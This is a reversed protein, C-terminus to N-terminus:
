AAASEQAPDCLARELESASSVVHVGPRAALERAWDRELLAALLLVKRGSALSMRAQIRTGSHESAEVIVTAATMAAMLGNRM